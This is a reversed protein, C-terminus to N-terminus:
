QGPIGAITAAGLAVSYQPHHTDVVTPRGMEESVMRAVLPIRSSGGVLLVASLQDPSVGASRLTRSLSGIASEIPARVMDEFEARTLRVEFYRGPLFVPLVTETDASLAEKALTCDQRLRALAIMTRPDRIDLESLAGGAAVDIHSLIAEDLDGGGLRETSEAACLIEVGDARMRLLTADFTGGGFDYVAVIEGDHLERSAACHAAVAEPETVLTVDSLGALNPVQEFMRQRFPGWHAPHTLVMRRPPVGETETVNAIVDRLLAALLTVVAHPEGGLMVPTPDGLCRKFGRAARDPSNVARRGAADGTVLAGDDGLYVVAPAVVSPDVLTFMEVQTPRAIAAAVFTNGLDVGLNYPVSGGAATAIPRSHCNMPPRVRWYKTAM